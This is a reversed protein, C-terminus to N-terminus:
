APPLAPTNPISALGGKVCFSRDGPAAPSMATTPEVTYEVECGSQLAPRLALTSATSVAVPLRRSTPSRPQRYGPASTAAGFPVRRIPMNSTLPGDVAITRNLGTAPM